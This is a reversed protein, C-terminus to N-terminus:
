FILNIVRADIWKDNIQPFEDLINEAYGLNLFNELIIYNFPKKYLKM